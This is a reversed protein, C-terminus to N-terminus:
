VSGLRGGRMRLAYVVGSCVFIAASLLLWRELFGDSSLGSNGEYRDSNLGLIGPFWVIFLIGSLFLPVRLHNVAAVVQRNESAGARGFAIRSLVSYLPFAIADHLIVAAGLWVFIGLANPTGAIRVLGYSCIATMALAAIVHLPGAGYSERLRKM